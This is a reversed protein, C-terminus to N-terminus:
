DQGNKAGKWDLFIMTFTSIKGYMDKKMIYPRKHWKTYNLFEDIDVLKSFVLSEVKRWKRMNNVRERKKFAEYSAKARLNLEIQM